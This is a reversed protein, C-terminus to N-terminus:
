AALVRVVFPKCAENIIEAEGERILAGVAVLEEDSLSDLLLRAGEGIRRRIDQEAINPDGSMVLRAVNRAPPWVM